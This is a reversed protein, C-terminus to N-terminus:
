ILALTDTVVIPAGALSDPVPPFQGPTLTVGYRALQLSLLATRSMFWTMGARRALPVKSMLTAGLQDTLPKAMTINKVRWLSYISPMSLGIYFSFNSMWALFQKTADDPDPVYQQKWPRLDLQGDNGVVLHIGQYNPDLWALWATEVTGTGTADVEYASGGFQSEFGNFGLADATQGYFIQRGLSIGSGQVIGAAEQALLDGTEGEDAKIIAEDVSLLADFFYMPKVESVYTSKGPSVGANANRFAGTPVAVRRGVRYSTGSKTRVPLAAFEPAVTVVEEVLGVVADNGTRNAIDLLNLRAM